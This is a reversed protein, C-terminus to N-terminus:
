LSKGYYDAYLQAYKEPNTAKLSLLGKSDKKEYDRITWGARADPQGNGAGNTLNVNQRTVGEVVDALRIDKAPQGAAPAAAGTAGTPKSLQTFDLFQVALNPNLKALTVFREKNDKNVLGAQEALSIIADATTTESDSKLKGIAALAEQETATASLGLTKLVQEMRKPSNLTLTPLFKNLTDANAAADDTLWLGNGLNLRLANKNGPIDVISAENLISQTLTPRTQGAVLMEPKESWEVFELGASCANLMGQDVKSAIGAAFPDTLDFVAEASVNADEKSVQIDDWKGVVVGRMHMYLMVPNKLFDKLNVGKTITRFGYCNLREDTLVFRAM